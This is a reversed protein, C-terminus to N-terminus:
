AILKTFNERFSEKSVPKIFYGKFFNIKQAKEMDEKNDSSSIIFFKPSTESSNLIDEFKQNILSFFEFGNMIPMNIDSIIIPYPFNEPSNLLQKEIKELAEIASTFTEVEIAADTRTIHRTLVKLDIPSDDILM